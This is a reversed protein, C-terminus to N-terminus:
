REAAESLRGPEGFRESALPLSDVRFLCLFSGLPGIDRGIDGELTWPAREGLARRAPEPLSVSADPVSFPLVLDLFAALRSPERVPTEGTPDAGGERGPLGESGLAGAGIGPMGVASWTLAAIGAPPMVIASRMARNLDFGLDLSALAAKIESTFRTPLFEGSSLDRM